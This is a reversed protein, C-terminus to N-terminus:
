VDVLKWKTKKLENYVRWRYNAVKIINDEYDLKRKKTTFDPWEELFRENSATYERGLGDRCIYVLAKRFSVENVLDCIEQLSIKDGAVMNYSHYKPEHSLFFELMRCFDDVWLYDFYLNQRISFPLGKVAKCCINSIFKQSYYEYKGFIGFLRFNYINESAEILREVTYKM